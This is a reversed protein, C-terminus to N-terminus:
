LRPLALLLLSAFKAHLARHASFLRNHRNSSHSHDSLLLGISPPANPRPVSINHCLLLIYKSGTRYLLNFVSKSTSLPHSSLTSLSLSIPGYPLPGLLKSRNAAKNGSKAPQLGTELELQLASRFSSIRHSSSTWILAIIAAAILATGIVENVCGAAFASLQM